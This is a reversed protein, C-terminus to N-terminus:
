GGKVERGAPLLTRIHAVQRRLERRLELLELGARRAVLQEVPEDGPQDAEDTEDFVDLLLEVRHLLLDTDEALQEFLKGTAVLALWRDRFAEAARRFRALEEGRVEASPRVRAM